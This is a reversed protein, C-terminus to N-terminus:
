YVIGPPITCDTTCFVQANPDNPDSVPQLQSDLKVGNNGALDCEEGLDTDVHGDGCSRPAKCSVSCKSGANTDGNQKGLDCEEPGSPPSQLTGDGCFAGWKCQTTCGGYTTDSNPGPCGAPVAVTGDGCDCEEDAVTVGDGCTPACQSKGGIFNALTLMYNSGCCWREAQLVVVEYVSGITMKLDVTTYTSPPEGYGVQATGKSADLIATGVARNHTGPMEIAMTGNIFVWVDDDGTFKLQETGQYQFWYRLETTFSFNHNAWSNGFGLGQYAHCTRDDAQGQDYHYTVALGTNQDILPKTLDDLPFFGCLDYWPSDTDSNMAYTTKSTANQLLTLNEYYTMNVGSVDRYWQDFESKGTFLIQTPDPVPDQTPGAWVPKHKADLTSSLVGKGKQLSDDCCYHGFDPHGTPPSGSSYSEFDRAIIPIQLKPPPDDFFSKCTWGAEIKCDHSCGDGDAVNGDDCDEIGRWLIGDGCTSKCAGVASTATGCQPESQCNSACGDYPLTNGDDCTEGAEKVGNGCVTPKCTSPSGTCDFGPEIKCMASCGDGSATNGDDCTEFGKMIGDGCRTSCPKGPVRCIYGTEVTKCDSSCGDGSVTNGDDCVKNSTLVGSGCNGVYKCPKGETPCDWNAEIQCLRSCGDGNTTNGDDCQESREIIGDGCTGGGPRDVGASADTIFLPADLNVILGGAGGQGGQTGAGGGGGGSGGPGNNVVTASSCAAATLLAAAFIVLFTVGAPAHHLVPGHSSSDSNM